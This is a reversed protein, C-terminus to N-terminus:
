YCPLASSAPAGAGQNPQFQNPYGGAQPYGGQQYGQQQPYGGYQQQGYRQQPGTAPTGLCGGM